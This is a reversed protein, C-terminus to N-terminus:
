HASGPRTEEALDPAPSAPPPFEIEVLLGIGTAGLPRFRSGRALFEDILRREHFPDYAEDFFLVDGPKLQGSLWNLAFATPEYMDMDFLVCLPAGSDFAARPLTEEVLGVHWTVRNDAIQPPRGRNSFTGAAAFELGGRHWAEPLGSFTDFGHWTLQPNAIESLWFRTAIGSAVGFELVTVPGATYRHFISRWLAERHLFRRGENLHRARQWMGYSAVHGAIELAKGLVRVRSSAEAVLSWVLDHTKRNYNSM